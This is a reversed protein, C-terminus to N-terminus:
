PRDLHLLPTPRSPDELVLSRLLGLRIEITRIHKHPIFSGQELSLSASHVM